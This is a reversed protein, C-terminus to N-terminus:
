SHDEERSQKGGRRTLLLLLTTIEHGTAELSAACIVPLLADGGTVGFTFLGVGALFLSQTERHVASTLKYSPSSSRMRQAVFPDNLSM